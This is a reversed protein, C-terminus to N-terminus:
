PIRRSCIPWHNLLSAIITSSHYKKLIYPWEMILFLIGWTALNKKNLNANNESSLFFQNVQLIHLMRHVLLLHWKGSKSFNFINYFFFVLIFKCLFSKFVEKMMNQFTVHTNTLGFIIIMFKYHSQHIHFTLKEKDEPHMCIQHHGLWLNFKTFFWARHLEDLLEDIIPIM